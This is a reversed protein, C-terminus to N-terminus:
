HVAPGGTDAFAEAGDRCRKRVFFFYEILGVSFAEELIRGEAFGLEAGGNEFTGALM